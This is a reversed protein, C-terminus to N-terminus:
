RPSVVGGSVMFGIEKSLLVESDVSRSVKVHIVPDTADELARLTLTFSQPQRPPVFGSWELAGETLVFGEHDVEVVVKDMEELGIAKMGLHLQIQRDPQPVYEVTLEFEGTEDTVVDTGLPQRTAGGGKPGCATLLGALLWAWSASTKM